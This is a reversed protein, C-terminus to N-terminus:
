SSKKLLQIKEKDVKSLRWKILGEQSSKRKNEELHKRVIERQDVQQEDKKRKKGKDRRM